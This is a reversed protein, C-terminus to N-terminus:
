YTLAYVEFCGYRFKDVFVYSLRTLGTKLLFRVIGRLRM